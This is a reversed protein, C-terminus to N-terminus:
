NTPLARAASSTEHIRTNLTRGPQTGVSMLGAHPGVGSPAAHPGVPRPTPPAGMRQPEQRAKQPEGRLLHLDGLLALPAPDFPALQLAQESWHLAKSRKGQRAYTIASQYAAEASKPSLQRAKALLRSPASASCVM